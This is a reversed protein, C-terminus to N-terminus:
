KSLLNLLECNVKTDTTIRKRFFSITAVGNEVRGSYNHVDQIPDLLPATYGTIWTDMVFARGSQDIM